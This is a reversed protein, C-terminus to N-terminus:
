GNFKKGLSLPAQYDIFLPAAMGDIISGRVDNLAAPTPETSKMVATELISLADLQSIYGAGVYGGITYANKVRMNHRNGEPETQIAYALKMVISDVYSQPPDTVATVQKKEIPPNAQAYDELLYTITKEALISWNKVVQCGPSGFYLRLSDKCSPDTYSGDLAFRRAIAQYIQRFTEAETVPEHFVFVVRSRPKDPTSSPTSYAFSAFLEAFTGPRMLYDLSSKEDETDFDFAIHYAASFNEEKRRSQFMPAFAYGQHILVALGVATTKVPQWSSHFRRWDFGEPAKGKLMKSLMIEVPSDKHNDPLPYSFDNM